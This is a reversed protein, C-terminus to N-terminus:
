FNAVQNPCFDNIKKSRIVNRQKALTIFKMANTVAITTNAAKLRRKLFWLKDHRDARTRHFLKFELQILSLAIKNQISVHQYWM